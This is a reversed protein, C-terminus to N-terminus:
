NFPVNLWLSGGYSEFDNGGIGDYSGATRIGWGGPTQVLVGGEVKGRSESTEVLAGNIVLDDTAFNKIGTFSVHPEITTGGAMGFRYGIEGGVTLRSISIDNGPVEQGLSNTYAGYWENGYALGAQPSLRWNGIYENGTLTATALWRTTDFSGSRDGANPDWLTIDNNSQGWAARTDFFVNDALKIGVYPGVMWGTGEVTGTLDPNVVDEKTDDVQVLAGVLIGPPWRM